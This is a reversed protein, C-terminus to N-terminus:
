FQAQGDGDFSFRYVDVLVGKLPLSPSGGGIAVMVSGNFSLQRIATTWM